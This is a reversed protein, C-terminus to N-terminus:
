GHGVRVRIFGWGGDEVGVVFVFLIDSGSEWGGFCSISFRAGKWWPYTAATAALAQLYHKGEWAM